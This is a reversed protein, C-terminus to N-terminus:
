LCWGVRRVKLSGQRSSDHGGARSRIARLVPRNWPQNPVLIEIREGYNHCDSTLLCSQGSWTAVTWCFIDESVAAM